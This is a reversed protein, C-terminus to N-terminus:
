SQEFLFLLIKLNLVKHNSLKELLTEEKDNRMEVQESGM